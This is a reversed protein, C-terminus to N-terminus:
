KGKWLGITVARAQDLGTEVESVVGPLTVFLRSTPLLERYKAVLELYNHEAEPLSALKKELDSIESRKQQIENIISIPTLLGYKAQQEELTMLNNRESRLRFLLNANRM